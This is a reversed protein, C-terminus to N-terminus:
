FTPDRRVFYSLVGASTERLTTPGNVWTPKLAVPWFYYGYASDVVSRALSKSKALGLEAHAKSISILANWWAEQAAKVEAVKITESMVVPKACIANVGSVFAPAVIHLWLVSKFARDFINFWMKMAVLFWALIKKFILDGFRLGVKRRYWNILKSLHGVVSNILVSVTLQLGVPQLDGHVIRQRFWYHQIKSSILDSRM